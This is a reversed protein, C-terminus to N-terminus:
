CRNRERKKQKRLEEAARDMDDAITFLQAAMDVVAYRRAQELEKNARTIAAEKENREQAVQRMMQNRMTDLEQQKQELLEEASTKEKKDSKKKESGTAKKVEAGNAAYDSAEVTDSRTDQEKKDNM